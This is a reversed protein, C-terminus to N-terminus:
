YMLIPIHHLIQGVEEANIREQSTSIEVASKADLQILEALHARNKDTQQVYNRVVHAIDKWIVSSIVDKSKIM